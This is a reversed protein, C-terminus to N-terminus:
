TCAGVRDLRPDGGEGRQDGASFRQLLFASERYEKVLLWEIVPQKIQGVVFKIRSHIQESM